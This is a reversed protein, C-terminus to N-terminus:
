YPGLKPTNDLNSSILKRGFGEGEGDGVGGYTIKVGEGVGVGVGVGDGNGDGDGNTDGHSLQTSVHVSALLQVPVNAFLKSNQLSNVNFFTVSCHKFLLQTVDCTVVRGITIHLERLKSM